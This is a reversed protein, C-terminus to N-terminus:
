IYCLAVIAHGPNISEINQAEAHITSNGGKTPINCIRRGPNQICGQNGAVDTDPQTPGSPGVVSYNGAAIFGPGSLTLAPAFVLGAAADGTPDLAAGFIIEGITGQPKFDGQDVAAGRHTLAVLTNAAAGIDDERYDCDKVKGPEGDYELELLIHATGLDEGNVFAEAAIQRVQSVDINTKYMMSDRFEMGGSTAAAGAISIMPGPYWQLGGVGTLHVATTTGTVVDTAIGSVFIRIGTLSRATSPVVFDGPTNAGKQTLPYATDVAACPCERFDYDTAM